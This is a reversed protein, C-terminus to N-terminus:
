ERVLVDVPVVVRYRVIQEFTLDVACCNLLLLVLTLFLLNQISLLFIYLSVKETCKYRNNVNLDVMASKTTTLTM